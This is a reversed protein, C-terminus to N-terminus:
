ARTLAIDPGGLQRGGTISMRFGFLGHARFTASVQFSVDPIFQNCPLITGGTVFLDITIHVFLGNNVGYVPKNKMCAWRSIMMVTINCM